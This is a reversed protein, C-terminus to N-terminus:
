TRMLRLWPTTQPPKIRPCLMTEIINDARDSAIIKKINMCIGNLFPHNCRKDKLNYTNIAINIGAKVAGYKLCNHKVALVLSHSKCCATAAPTTNAVVGQQEQRKKDVKLSPLLM